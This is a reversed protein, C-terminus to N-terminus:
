LMMEDEEIFDPEKEKEYFHFDYKSKDVKYKTEWISKSNDYPNYRDYNNWYFKKDSYKKILEQFKTLDIDRTYAMIM